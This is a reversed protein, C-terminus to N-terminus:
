GNSLVQQYWGLGADTTTRPRYEAGVFGQYGIEDLVKYIERYAIEGEDPEARSPVAAIQIHGIQAVHSRLRTIVDGESIAVHYIDFMIKINDRAVHAIVDVAQDVTKFFYGPRDRPNMPELLLMIGHRLAKDAAKALNEAMTEFALTRDIAATHGALVHIASAGADVAWALTMDFLAHFAQERGPLAALGFEGADGDGVPTNIGLIRVGARQCRERVIVPDHDYPYHFEVAQFGAKGAADIRSLLPRDLWLFGTNASFRPMVDGLRRDALCM